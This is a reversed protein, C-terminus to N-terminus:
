APLLKGKPILLFGDKKAYRGCGSGKKKETASNKTKQSTKKANSNVNGYFHRIIIPLPIRARFVAAESM